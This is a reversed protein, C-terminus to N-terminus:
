LNITKQFHNIVGKLESQSHIALVAIPDKIVYAETVSSFLSKKRIQSPKVLLLYGSLSTLVNDENESKKIIWSNGGLVELEDKTGYWTIRKEEWAAYITDSKGSMMLDIMNKVIENNRFPYIEEAVAVIDYFEGENELKELTFNLVEVLSTKSSSL